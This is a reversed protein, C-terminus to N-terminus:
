YGYEHMASLNLDFFTINNEVTFWQGVSFDISLWLCIFLLGTIERPSIYLM